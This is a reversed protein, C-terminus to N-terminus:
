WSVPLRSAIMFETRLPMLQSRWYMVGLVGKSSSDMPSRSSAIVAHLSMM